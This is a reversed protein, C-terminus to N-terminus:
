ACVILPRSGHSPWGGCRACGAGAGAPPSNERGFRGNVRAIMMQRPASTANRTITLGNEPPSVSAPLVEVLEVAAVLLVSAVPLV